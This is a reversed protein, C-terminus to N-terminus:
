RPWSGEGVPATAMKEYLEAVEEIVREIRFLREARQRAAAGLALLKPRDTVLSEIRQAMATTDGQSVVLGTVGDELVENLGAHDMALIPRGAAQTEMLVRAMGESLSAHIFLDSDELFAEMDFVHGAFVINEAVGLSQALGRLDSEASGTGGIKVVIQERHTKIQSVARIVHHFGKDPILRGACAITFRSRSELTLAPIALFRDLPLGNVITQVRERPLKLARATYDATAQSVAALHVRPNSVVHQLYRRRVTDGWRTSTLSAPADYVHILHPIQRPTVLGATIVTPWLQTHILGPKWSQILKRLRSLRYPTLKRHHVPTNLYLVREGGGSLATSIPNALVCLRVDFRSDGQFGDFLELANRGGGGELTSIIQLIRTPEPM